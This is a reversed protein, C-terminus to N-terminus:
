ANQKQEWTLLGKIKTIRISAMRCMQRETFGKSFSYHKKINDRIGKCFDESINKKHKIGNINILEDVKKYLYNDLLELTSLDTINRHNFYVGSFIEHKNGGLRYNKTLYKLVDYLLKKVSRSGSKKHDLAHKVFYDLIQDIVKEYYSIKSETLSLSVPIGTGGITIHYGLYDFSEKDSRYDVSITKYKERDEETHLSLGTSTNESTTQIITQVKDFLLSPTEWDLPNAILLIDDVYRRYFYVGKLTKIRNDIDRLYFESLSSAFSMGRPIGFGSKKKNINYAIGRLLRMSKPSVYGDDGLMDLLHNFPISEFFCKIDARIIIKPLSEKLYAFLDRVIANRDPTETKYVYRIENNILRSAIITYRDSAKYLTKGDKLDVKTFNLQFKRRNITKYIDELLQDSAIQLNMTAEEYNVEFSEIDATGLGSEVNKSKKKKKRVKKLENKKEVCKKKAELYSYRFDENGVEFFDKQLLGKSNLEDFVERTKEISYPNYSM